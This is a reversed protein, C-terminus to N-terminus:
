EEAGWHTNSFFHQLLCVLQSRSLLEGVGCVPTGGDCSLKLTERIEQALLEKEEAHWAAAQHGGM